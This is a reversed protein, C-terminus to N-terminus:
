SEMKSAFAAAPLALLNKLEFSIIPEPKTACTLLSNHAPHLTQM